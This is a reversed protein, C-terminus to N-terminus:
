NLNLRVEKYERRNVVLITFPSDMIPKDQIMVSAQHHGNVEPTYYVM